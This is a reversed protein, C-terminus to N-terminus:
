RRQTVRRLTREAAHCGLSDTPQLDFDRNSMGRVDQPGKEVLAEFPRPKEFLTTDIKDGFSPGYYNREVLNGFESPEHLQLPRAVGDYFNAGREVANYTWGFAAIIALEKKGM